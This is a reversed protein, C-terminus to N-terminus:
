AVQSFIKTLINKSEDFWKENGIQTPPINKLDFNTNWNAFGHIAADKCNAHQEYHNEIPVMLLPKKHYIAESSTEFGGSCIVALCTKMKEQFVKGDLNYLRINKPVREHKKTLKTYVHIENAYHPAYFFLNPLLDENMIYALIFDDEKESKVYTEERLIPPCVIVDKNEFFYYSLAVKQAKISTIYNILRLFIKQIFFGKTEPYHKTTMAYQHGFSIYKIKPFLFATLGVLPDYFNCIIDPKESKITKCINVFAKILASFKLINQVFTKLVILKGKDDFFFDFGTYEYIDFESKFFDSFGKHKKAAFIKGIEYGKDTLFQKVSIAQITHGQGETQVGFVVKM